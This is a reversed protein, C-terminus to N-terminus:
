LGDRKVPISLVFVAHTKHEKFDLSANLEELKKSLEDRQRLNNLLKM